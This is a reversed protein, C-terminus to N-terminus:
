IMRVAFRLSEDFYRPARRGTRPGKKSKKKGVVVGLQNDIARSLEITETESMMRGRM